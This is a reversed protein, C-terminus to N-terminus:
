RLKYYYEETNDDITEFSFGQEKYYKIIDALARCTNVNNYNCHALIIRNNQDGKARKANSLLREASLNPNVGDLLDVNWDYIKFGNKHIENLLGENLVGASGGPFRIAKPEIGILGKVLESTRKMEDIFIENSKYIKKFDHSYTHLAISHGEEHIRKLIDERGVIEKGVVFFTAKVENEKLTDLLKNTTKYSPGDDFTLYVKKSEVTVQSSCVNSLRENMCINREEAVTEYCIINLFIFIVFIQSSIKRKIM